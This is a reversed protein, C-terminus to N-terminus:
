RKRLTVIVSSWRITKTALILSFYVLLTVMVAIVTASMVSINYLTLTDYTFWSIAATFVGIGVIKVVDWLEFCAGINKYLALYNLITELVVAISSALAVGYIGLELNVSLPYILALSLCRPIINNWMSASSQDIGILSSQMPSHFYQLLYFPATLKLLNAAEPAHYVVTLLQDAFIFLIVSSPVGVLLSVRVAQSIRKNILRKNRQANAESIAPVLAVSLSYNIFGPFFLLPYIYGNLMGYQTAAETSSLGIQLLSHAIIVPQVVRLLSRFLQNGTQPIGTALLEKLDVKSTNFRAMIRPRRFSYKTTLKFTVLLFILGALEGLVAAFIAGAAAYEVGFPQLRIIFYYILGIRIVQEIVQSIALPNMNQKGQFYGRIVGSVAVIPIIPTIAMLSYYARKDALFYTAITEGFALVLLMIILGTTCTIILSIILVRKIKLNDGAATAEAVVKSIAIPLGLTTLTMLLGIFPAVMMQLGIGEAGLIRSLIITTIFGLLKTVLAAATLVFAGQLLSQKPM